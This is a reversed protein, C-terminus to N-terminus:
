AKEETQTREKEELNVLDRISMWSLGIRRSAGDELGCVSVLYGLERLKDALLM